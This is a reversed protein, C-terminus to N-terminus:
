FNSFYNINIDAIDPAGVGSQLAILLKNAMEANPYTEIQLDIPQDPHKENYAKEGFEFISNHLENSTWLTVVTAEGSAAQEGGAESAAQEAQSGGAAETESSGGGCATLSAALSMATLALAFSKKM